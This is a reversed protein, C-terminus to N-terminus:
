ILGEPIRKRIDPTALAHGHNGAVLLKYPHPQAALWSPVDDLEDATGSQTLYGAHILIDGDPLPPHKHRTNYTDSICVIRM